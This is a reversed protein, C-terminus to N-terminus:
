DIGRLFSHSQTTLAVASTGHTLKTLRLLYGLREMEDVEASTAVGAISGHRTLQKTYFPEDVIRVLIERVRNTSLSTESM